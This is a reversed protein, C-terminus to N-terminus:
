LSLLHKMTVAFKEGIAKENRHVGSQVLHEGRVFVDRVCANGGSFIWGDLLADGSKGALVPHDRDLVVLDCPQGTALQAAPRGLCQSGGALCSDYLTRGTSRGPGGALANRANHALRQSYELMRLEGAVGIEVHSDTGIAMRGGARQYDVGAFTGDGLNAETTPCLGAVAGSAALMDVEPGTMHTAHVLCWREDVRHNAFLDEVPRRGRSAICDNVEKKQEAIHIHVPGEPHLSNYGDLVESLGSRTVARLSHPAIGVACGPATKVAALLRETLNLFAEPSHVFRKQGPVPPLDNFGGSNYFVPLVTIGIGSQASAELCRLSMEAPGAYPTGDSGHHLYQFEGIATFGAKLCEVYLQAAIAELHDPTIALVFKYMIERWTWFSDPGDGCVEALGAMARQHAHSHVNAMGPLAAGKVRTAGNAPTEPTLSTIIGSGDLCLAVNDHWGDPLLAHELHIETNTM